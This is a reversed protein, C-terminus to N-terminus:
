REDRAEKSARRCLSGARLLSDQMNSVARVERGRIDAEVWLCSERGVRLKLGVQRKGWVLDNGM